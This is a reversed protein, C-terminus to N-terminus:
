QIKWTATNKLNFSLPIGHIDQPATSNFEKEASLGATTQVFKM